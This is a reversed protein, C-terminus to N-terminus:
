ESIFHNVHAMVERSMERIGNIGHQPHREQWAVMLGSTTLMNRENTVTDLIEEEGSTRMDDEYQIACRQQVGRGEGLKWQPKTM